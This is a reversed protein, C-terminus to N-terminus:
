NITIQCVIGRKLRNTLSIKEFFFLCRRDKWFFLFVNLSFFFLSLFCFTTPPLRPPMPRLIKLAKGTMWRPRRHLFGDGNSTAPKNGHYGERGLMTTLRDIKGPFDARCVHVRTFACVPVCTYVVGTGPRTVNLVQLWAATCYRIHGNIPEPDQPFKRFASGTWSQDVACVTQRALDELAWQLPPVIKWPPFPNEGTRTHINILRHIRM